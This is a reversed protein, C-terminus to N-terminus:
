QHALSSSSCALVLVLLLFDPRIITVQVVYRNNWQSMYEEFLSEHTFACELKLTEMIEGLKKRMPYALKPKAVVLESPHGEPIYAQVFQADKPHTEVLITYGNNYYGSAAPFKSFGTILLGQHNEM